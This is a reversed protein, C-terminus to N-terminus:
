TATAPQPSRTATYTRAESMIAVLLDIHKALSYNASKAIRQANVEAEVDFLAMLAEGPGMTRDTGLVRRLDRERRYDDIGFRAARVLLQPRVLQAILSTIDLM